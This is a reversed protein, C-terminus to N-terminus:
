FKQGEVLTPYSSQPTRNQRDALPCPRNIRDTSLPRPYQNPHAHQITRPEGKPLSLFSVMLSIPSAISIALTASNLEAVGGMETRTPLSMGRGTMRPDLGLIVSIPPTASSFEAVRAILM